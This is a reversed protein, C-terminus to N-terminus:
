KVEVKDDVGMLTKAEATLLFARLWDDWSEGFDGKHLLEEGEKQFEAAKTLADSAKGSNGLRFHAMALVPYVKAFLNHPAKRQAESGWTRANELHEIADAFRGRRYDALGKTFEFWYKLGADLDTTAVSDAVRIGEKINAESGPLLLAGQVARERSRPNNSSGFRELFRRCHEGYQETQGLYALLAAQQHWAGDDSTLDMLRACDASAEKFHGGRARYYARRGLIFQEADRPATSVLDNLLAEGEDYKHEALLRVIFRGLLTGMEPRAKINGPLVERILAEAEAFQGLDIMAATLNGAIVAVERNGDGLLKRSIAFSQRYLPAAETLRNQRGLLVALDNLARAFELNDEGQVRRRIEIAQRYAGEAEAKKEEEFLVKGLSELAFATSSDETGPHKQFIALAERLRKEAEPFDNRASFFGALNFLSHAVELHENGLLQRQTELTKRCLKEATEPDAENGAQLASLKLERLEAEQRLRRETTEAAVARKLAEREKLFMRTSIGLGLVLAAVVAAGSAFALKNRRVMKQFRYLNSPPCAVVPENSLHRQIDSALGNATEYRRARDKELAKM